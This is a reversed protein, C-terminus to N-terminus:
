LNERQVFRALAEVSQALVQDTALRNAPDNIALLLTRRSQTTSKPLFTRDPIIRSGERPLITVRQTETRLRRELRPLHVSGLIVEKPVKQDLYFFLQGEETLALGLGSRNVLNAKTSTIVAKGSPVIVWGKSHHAHELDGRNNLRRRFPNKQQHTFFDVTKGATAPNEQAAHAIEPGLTTLTDLLEQRLQTNDDKNLDEQLAQEHAEAVDDRMTSVLENFEPSSFNIAM